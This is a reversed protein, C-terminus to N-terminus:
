PVTSTSSRDRTGLRLAHASHAKAETCRGARFPGWALADEAYISPAASYAARARALADAVNRDHDLDFVATQLETRVGNAAFLREIAGVLAYERRAASEHGSVHLVDGLMIVYAPVPLVDVVHRLRVIARRYHGASAEVRALGAEAHVYGPRRRLANRYASAAEALLGTNFHIASSTPHM